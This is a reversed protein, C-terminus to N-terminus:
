RSAAWYIRMIYKSARSYWTHAIAMHLIDANCCKNEMAADLANIDWAPCAQNINKLIPVLFFWFSGFLVMFFWLSGPYNSWKPWKSIDGYHVVRQIACREVELNWTKEVIKLKQTPCVTVSSFHTFIAAWMFNDFLLPPYLLTTVLSHIRPYVFVTYWEISWDHFTPLKLWM